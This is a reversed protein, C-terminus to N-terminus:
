GIGRRLEKRTYHKWKGTKPNKRFGANKVAGWAYRFCREEPLLLEYWAKNFANFFIILARKPLVKKVREPLDSLSDYPM